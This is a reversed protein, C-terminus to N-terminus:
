LRWEFSSIFGDNNTDLKNFMIRISKESLGKNLYYSKYENYSIKNDNNRDILDFTNRYPRFIREPQKNLISFVTIEDDNFLGFDDYSSVLRKTTEPRGLM